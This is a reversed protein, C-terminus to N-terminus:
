NELSLIVDLNAWEYDNFFSGMNNDFYEPDYTPVYWTKQSFYDRWEQTVFIRGHRAFLENRLKALDSKSWGSLESASIYRSNADYMMYSDDWAGSNSSGGGSSPKDWILYNNAVYGTQGNYSIQIWGNDTTGTVTVSEGPSLTAIVDYGSGAGTRVNVNGTSYMTGSSATVSYNGRYGGSSGSGSTGGTSGSGTTSGGSSSSGSASGSSSGSGTSSGGSTSSGSSSSGSTGSGGPQGSVLYNSAVYGTQGNYSIETWGDDRTEVVTVNDGESLTGLVESDMGAADRVNVNGSAYTGSGATEQGKQSNQAAASATTKKASITFSDKTKAFQEVSVPTEPEKEGLGTETEQVSAVSKDVLSLGTDTIFMSGGAALITAGAIGLITSLNRKNSM